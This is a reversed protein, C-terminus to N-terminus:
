TPAQNMLGRCNMKVSLSGCFMLRIKGDWKPSKILPFVDVGAPITICKNGPIYKKFGLSDIDTIHAFITNQLTNKLFSIIWKESISSIMKILINKSYKKQNQFYVVENNHTLVIAKKSSLNMISTFIFSYFILSNPFTSFLQKSQTKYERTLFKELLYHSNNLITKLAAISKTRSKNSFNSQSIMVGKEYTTLTNVGLILVKNRYKSLYLGLRDVYIDAGNRTPYELHPAFILIQPPKNNM